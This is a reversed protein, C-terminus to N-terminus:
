EIASQIAQTWKAWSFDKARLLGRKRLSAQLVVDGLVREIAGAISEICHPDCYAVAEGGVESLSSVKSTIVPTGSTMAELVPLGFGEYLSPFVFCVSSRYLAPLDEQEVFGLLKVRALLDLEGVLKEADTVLPALQPLLRGSIVLMPLEASSKQKVLLAYARLLGEINKRKELGGGAYLFGHQLGYKTLVRAIEGESQPLAFLPDIAPREVIIREASLGLHEVMDRKTHESVAILISARVIAREILRQYWRKRANNLYEPFLKPIIDHVVMGHHVSKPLITASQYLSVFADCGDQKVAQPVLWREWWVKRILDDRHYWKSALVRVSIKSSLKVRLEKSLEEEVYIVYTHSACEGAEIMRSLEVLFHWSVQGIGTSAKRVFSANIGIHM